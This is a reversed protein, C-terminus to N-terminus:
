KPSTKRAESNAVISLSIPIAGESLRSELRFGGDIPIYSFPKKDYPDLHQNLARPGDLRVAIATQLLTRRTQNYAEAWRFRPLSPTFLRIVAFRPAWSKYFSQQQDICNVFGKVSGGCGDVIESALGRNSQLVPVKNLLQEILEDRTKAAQVIALFDNRRVKESEFATGLSFGSPLAGLGGALENLQAPSLRLLNQALVGTVTTELKYAFLVSALSGDVSLHRAAAMAALADGTAGPMDGDRFRLRARLGSVAILEKIAGRHATNALPGDEVSVEWDCRKTAAGHRFEVLADEAAAVLKEDEGDLPLELAKELKAAADPSLAYSQRLAADARLYKVAANEM